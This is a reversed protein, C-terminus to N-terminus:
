KGDLLDLYSQKSRAGVLEKVVKGNDFLFTTPVSRIGYRVAAEPLKDIDLLYVPVEREKSVEALRPKLAHCPGCWSASALLFYRTDKITEEFNETEIEIM